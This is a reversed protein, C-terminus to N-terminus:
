LSVWQDKPQKKIFALIESEITAREEKNGIYKMVKFEPCFKEFEQTWNHILSLPCVILFPGDILDIEKLLAFLAICQATKGLGMDDGLIGGGNNDLRFLSMLWSIGSIQHPKLTVNTISKPQETLNLSNQTQIIDDQRQQISDLFEEM